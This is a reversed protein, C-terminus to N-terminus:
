SSKATPSDCPNLSLFHNFPLAHTSERCASKPVCVPACRRVKAVDRLVLSGLQKLASGRMIIFFFVLGEGGMADDLRSLWIPEVM